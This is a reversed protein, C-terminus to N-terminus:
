PLVIPSSSSLCAPIVSMRYMHKPTYRPKPTIKIDIPPQYQDFAPATPAVATYRSSTPKMMSIMPPIESHALKLPMHNMSKRMSSKLM